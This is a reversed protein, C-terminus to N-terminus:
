KLRGLDTSTVIYVVYVHVYVFGHIDCSCEHVCVYCNIDYVRM